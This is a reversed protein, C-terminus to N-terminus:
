VRIRDPKEFSSLKGSPKPLRCPKSFSSAAPIAIFSSGGKIERKSFRSTNDNLPHLPSSNLGLFESRKKWNNGASIGCEPPKCSGEKEPKLDRLFNFRLSQLMDSRAIELSKLERHENSYNSRLPFLKTVRGALRM